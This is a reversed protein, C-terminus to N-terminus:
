TAQDLLGLNGIAVRTVADLTVLDTPRPSDLRITSILDGARMIILNREEITGDDNEVVVVLPLTDDSLVGFDLSETTFQMGADEVVAQECDELLDAYVDAAQDGQGPYYSITNTLTTDLGAGTFTVSTTEEPELEKLRDDCDHETVLEPGLPEADEVLVYPPPVDDATLLAETLLEQDVPEPEPRTVERNTQCGSALLAGGVVMTAVARAAKSQGLV